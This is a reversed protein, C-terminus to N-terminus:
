TGEIAKPALDSQGDQERDYATLRKIHELEPPKTIAKPLSPKGGPKAEPLDVGIQYGKAKAERIRNFYARLAPEVNGEKLGGYVSSIEEIAKEFGEDEIRAIDEDVKQLTQEAVGLDRLAEVASEYRRKKSFKAVAAYLFAATVLMFQWNVDVAVSIDINDVRKVIPLVDDGPSVESYANNFVKFFWVQEDLFDATTGRGAQLPFIISLTPVKGSNKEVDGVKEVYPRVSQIFQQLFQEVNAVTQLDEKPLFSYVNSKLRDYVYLLLNYQKFSTLIRRESFQLGEFNKIYNEKWVQFAGADSVANGATNQARANTVKTLTSQATHFAHTIDM